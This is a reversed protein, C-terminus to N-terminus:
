EPRLTPRVAITEFPRITLKPRVAPVSPYRAYLAAMSPKSHGFCVEDVAVGEADETYANTSGWKLAYRGDGSTLLNHARVRVPEPSLEALERLLKRGNATDTYNPEDYGIWNWLHRYAGRSKALDVRISVAYTKAM